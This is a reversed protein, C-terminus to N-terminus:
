LTDANKSSIRHASIAKTIILPFTDLMKQGSPLPLNAHCGVVIAKKDLGYEVPIPSSDRPTIKGLPKPTPLVHM